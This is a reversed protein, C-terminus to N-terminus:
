EAGPGHQPAHHGRDPLPLLLQLAAGVRRPGGRRVQGPLALVSQLGAGALLLM